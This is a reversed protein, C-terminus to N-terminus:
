RPAAEDDSPAARRQDVADAEPMEIPLDLHDPLAETGNDDSREDDPCPDPVQTTGTPEPANSEM